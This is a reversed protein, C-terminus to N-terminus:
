IFLSSFIHKLCKGAGDEEDSDFYVDDYFEDQETGNLQKMSKCTESSTGPM